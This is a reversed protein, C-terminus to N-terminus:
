DPNAEVSSLNLEGNRQELSVGGGEALRDVEVAHLGLVPM